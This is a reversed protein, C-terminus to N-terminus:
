RAASRQLDVWSQVAPRQWQLRAYEALKDPVKDGNFVLRCLMVALDTDAICWHDFLCGVSDDLLMDATQILKEASQRARGSLPIDLRESFIVTTPREEKLPGLDSRLWAQIQRARSRSRLPGPYVATYKPAPFEEELYDSIASSESLSFGDHVITPVRCTLSIRQYEADSQRAAALDVTEIRCKLGKEVIAVYASLAYPSMLREDAYLTLDHNPTPM